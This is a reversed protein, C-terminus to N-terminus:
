YPKKFNNWKKCYSTINTVVICLIQLVTLLKATFKDLLNHPLFFLSFIDTNFKVSLSKEM